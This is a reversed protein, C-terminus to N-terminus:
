FELNSQIKVKIHENEQRDLARKIDWEDEEDDEHNKVIIVHNPLLRNWFPCTRMVVGVGNPVFV